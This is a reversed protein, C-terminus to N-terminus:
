AVSYDSHACTPCAAMRVPAEFACLPQDELLQHGRGAVYGAELLARPCLAEELSQLAAPVARHAEAEAPPDDESTLAM